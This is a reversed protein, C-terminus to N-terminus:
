GRLSGMYEGQIQYDASDLPIEKRSGDEWCMYVEQDGKMKIRKVTSENEHRVLMIRNHQPADARRMLVYDGDQIGAETMSNGKIQVTFYRSTDGKLKERPWPVVREPPIDIDIPMGAATQGFFPVYMIDDSISVVNNDFEPPPRIELTTEYDPEPDRTELSLPPSEPYVASEAGGQSELLVDIQKVAIVRNPPTLRRYIGVLEEEEPPIEKGNEFLKPLGEASSPTIFMDGKGTRLWEANVTYGEKLRNPTCIM